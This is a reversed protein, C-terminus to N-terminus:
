KISKKEVRGALFRQRLHEMIKELEENGAHLFDDFHCCFIGNIEHTQLVFVAHDLKSQKCGPKVFEEKVSLYFQRAGDKLGYLCHRLKWIIGESVESEIPPRLFVDLSLEKGRLFASKIDTTKIIWQKHAAITLLIRIAAKSATPSDWQIMDEEEFGRAVLRAKVKGEKETIVWRTSM